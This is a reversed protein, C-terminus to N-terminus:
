SAAPVASGDRSRVLITLAAVILCAALAFSARMGKAVAEPEAVGAGTTGSALAFVAGMLSAGTVLGLHRSLNLMGSVLGREGAPVDSMVLSNNSTQFVAYGLTIVVIPAIYGFVGCGAPLVALLAAGAAIGALGLVTMRTAGVMDVFRGAPVSALAAVLPGVSLLTGALAAGLGLGRTLYFPGVILTTMLVASVLASAALSARLRRDGLRELPILPSAARREALGFLVGGLAAGILLSLNLLGFSGRGITMALAYALLTVSLALTGAIDFGRLSMGGEAGVSPLHRYTLAFAAIGLPVNILFIAQWGLWALLAGGLSPGLATGIASMTGLLGMAVGLREKPVAEGALALALTIM